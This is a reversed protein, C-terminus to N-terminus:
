EARKMILYASLPFPPPVRVIPPAVAMPALGALYDAAQGLEHRTLLPDSIDIPKGYIDLM